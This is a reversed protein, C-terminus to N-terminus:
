ETLDDVYKASNLEALCKELTDADTKEDPDRWAGEKLDISPHSLAYHESNKGITIDNYCITLIKDKYLKDFNDWIHQRLMEEGYEGKAPLKIKWGSGVSGKIKGCASEFLLSGMMGAMKGTGEEIGVVKFESSAKVKMKLQEKSTGSKWIGNVSKLVSGEHGEQQWKSNQKFAEELSNVIVYPIVRIRSSGLESVCKEIMQLRALRKKRWIGVDHDAKPVVDWIVAIMSDAEAQTITDNSEAAKAAIGNSIQRSVINGDVDQALLEGQFVPADIEPHDDQLLEALTLFLDDFSELFNSAVGERSEALYTENDPDTFHDSYKGDMKMELIAPMPINACNEPTSLACRMYSKDRIFSSGWVKNATKKSMGCDIKGTIILELMEADDPALSSLLHALHDRAEHGTLTRDSLATLGAMADDLTISVPGSVYEPIKKINFKIRNDLALRMFEKLTANAKHKSLLAVTDNKGSTARLALIIPKISM